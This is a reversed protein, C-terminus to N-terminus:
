AVRDTPTVNVFVRKRINGTFALVKKKTFSVQGDVLSILTDDATRKVNKGPHFKTGRQRVLIQGRGVYESGFAKVGLRKSISDRGSKVSGTAKKHAM